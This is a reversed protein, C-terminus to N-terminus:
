PSRTLDRSIRTLTNWALDRLIKNTNWKLDQLIVLSEQLPIEHWIGPFKSNPLDQLIMLSEQWPIEHRIWSFRSNTLDQLIILYEQLPIEHWIGSFRSNTNGQSRTFNHSKTGLIGKKRNLAYWMIQYLDHLWSHWESVIDTTNM